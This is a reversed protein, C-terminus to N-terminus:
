VRTHQITRGRGSPLDRVGRRNPGRGAEGTTQSPCATAPAEGPRPRACRRPVPRLRLALAVRAALEAPSFPKVIYDVAGAELARAATDGEDYASLFIVPLDALGPLTQMLEVGDTRLLVLHLVALAPRKTELLRPTNGPDVAALADRVQRLAHPDDDVVLMPTRGRTRGTRPPPAEEDDAASLTVLQNRDDITM